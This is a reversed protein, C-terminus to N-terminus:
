VGQIGPMVPRGWADYQMQPQMMQQHQTMQQQMPVGVPRGWPDVAMGPMVGGPYMGPMMGVMAAMSPSQMMAAQQMLQQQQLQQQTIPSNFQTPQMMMPMPSSQVLSDFSVKGDANHKVPAPAVVQGPVQGPYQPQLPQVADGYIPAAPTHHRRDVFQTEQVPAAVTPTPAPNLAAASIMSVSPKTPEAKAEPEGENGRQSPIMMIEKKYSNLDDFGDVWELNFDIVNENNIFKGYVAWLENLRGAVNISTRLLCDLWPCDTSDSFSNYADGDEQGPFIFELLQQVKKWDKEKIKQFGAPIDTSSPFSVVGVRAHREGRFTGSKKTYINVFLADPTEAFAATAAAMFKGRFVEDVVDVSKILERQQPNMKSHLAPTSLIEMLGDLMSLTSLNLRVNIVRRLKRVVDSEGRNIFEQLPHFIIEKAPDLKKLSADYPFKLLKGDIDAPFSRGNLVVRMSGDDDVTFGAFDLINKYLVHLKNM